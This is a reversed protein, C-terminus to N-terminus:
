RIKVPTIALLILILMRQTKAFDNAFTKLLIKRERGVSTQNIGVEYLTRLYYVFLFQRCFNHETISLSTIKSHRRFGKAVLDGHNYEHNYSTQIRM